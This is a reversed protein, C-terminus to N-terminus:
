RITDHLVFAALSAASETFLSSMRISTFIELALPPIPPPPHPPIECIAIIAVIDTDPVLDHKM